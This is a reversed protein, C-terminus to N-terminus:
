WAVGFGARPVDDNAIAPSVSPSRFPAAIASASADGGLGVRSCRARASCTAIRSARLAADRAHLVKAGRRAVEIEVVGRTVGARQREADVGRHGGVPGRRVVEVGDRLAIGVIGSSLVPTANTASSPEISDCVAAMSAGYVGFPLSSARQVQASSNERIAPRQEVRV